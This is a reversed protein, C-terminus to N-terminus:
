SHRGNIIFRNDLTALGMYMLWILLATEGYNDNSSNAIRPLEAIGVGVAGPGFFQDHFIPVTVTPSLLTTSTFLHLRGFSKWYSGQFAPNFEPHFEALRQFSADSSLQLKTTPNVVGCRFGDDFTPVNLIDFTTEITQLWMASAPYDGAMVATADAIMGRPRVITGALEFRDRLFCDMTRKHDMELTKAAIQAPEHISFHGDFRAVGLPRVGVGPAAGFAVGDSYPGGYRRVTVPVQDSLSNIPVQSIVAGETIERVLETHVTTPFNPRNLRITHGPMKGQGIEPVVQIAASMIPDALMLGDTKVDYPEGNTGFQRGPIPLGVSSGGSLKANLAVQFMRAYPFQPLPPTLLKASTIDYYEQPLTM